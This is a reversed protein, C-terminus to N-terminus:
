QGSTAPQPRPGSTSICAIRAARSSRTSSCGRSSRIAASRTPSYASRASITRLWYAAGPRWLSRHAGACIVSRRSRTPFARTPKFAEPRWAPSLDVPSRSRIPKRPFTGRRERRDGSQLASARPAVTDNTDEGKGARFSHADSLSLVRASADSVAAAARGSSAVGLADVPKSEAPSAPWFVAVPDPGSVSM